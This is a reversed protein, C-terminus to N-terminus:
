AGVSLPSCKFAMVTRNSRYRAQYKVALDMKGGCALVSSKAYPVWCYISRYQRYRSAILSERYRMSVSQRLPQRFRSHPHRPPRRGRRVPGLRQQLHDQALGPRPPCEHRMQEAAQRLHDRTANEDLSAAWIDAFAQSYRELERPKDLYLAGTFTESYVTPPETEAGGVNSPFRLITFSGSVLGPHYGAGFPVVRLTVNPLESVEALQELQAAMVVSGGVPRRLVQEGIALQVAPPDILRRVIRQRALRLELRREVEAETENPSHARIITRAYDETQFLGTVLETQYDSQRVAATELGIYMDFWEPIVDGYAQWWGKAKTEKALSMLAAMMDPTAGYLECMAKVDLSRVSTQGTEIRWLTPESRELEQAAVKLTVGAAQRLDRLYRGLQRRPVTSGAAIETM